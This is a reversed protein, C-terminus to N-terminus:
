LNFKELRRYLAGRTLGLEAAAKSVNGGHKIMCSRVARKELEELNFTSDEAPITSDTEPLHFDTATLTRSGCMIVAREVTHQLERVNGPWSYKMLKSLASGALKLSEKRYKKMFKELFHDVLVPIDIGRDRLPPVVIEVTNIRYLLDKRFTGDSVMRVLPMNSASILRIDVEVAKNSGVRSISRNELVSLLKVQLNVPLNGIEDLFLTGGSAAEFRGVREEAADTFAGRVHGFLESEFLSGPLAGLDVGIFVEQKRNSHRHIERAVLEKGTGNEGQILVNADTGAVKRIQEVLKQMLPSEGVLTSFQDDIASALVKKQSTLHDVQRRSRCLKYAANVSSLLKENQWPKIVFDVAGEKIAEVALGVEGFATIMIVSVLPDSSLIKKLWIMGEQGTTDGQRFNMDLLIVDFDVESMRAPIGTPDKMAIVQRYHQELLTQLALIIYPDDDVVLIKGPSQSYMIFFYQVFIDM